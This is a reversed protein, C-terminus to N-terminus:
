RRADFGHVQFFNRAQDEHRKQAFAHVPDRRIEDGNANIWRGGVLRFDDNSRGADRRNRPVFAPEDDAIEMPEPSSSRLDIPADFTTWPQPLLRPPAPLAPPAPPLLRPPALLAPPAPPGSRRESRTIAKRIADLERDSYNSKLKNSAWPEMVVNSRTFEWDDLDVSTAGSYMARSHDKHGFSVSGPFRTAAFPPIAIWPDFLSIVISPDGSRHPDLRSACGILYHTQWSGYGDIQYRWSCLLATTKFKRKCLTALKAFSWDNPNNGLFTYAGDACKPLRKKQYKRDLILTLRTLPEALAPARRVAGVRAIPASIHKSIGQRDNSSSTPDPHTSVQQRDRAQRDAALTDLDRLVRKAAAVPQTMREQRLYKIANEIVCADWLVDILKFMQSRLGNTDEAMKGNEDVLCSLDAGAASAVQALEALQVTLDTVVSGHMWALDTIFRPVIRVNEASLM